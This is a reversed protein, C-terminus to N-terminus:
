AGKASKQPEDATKLIFTTKQTVTGWENLEREPGDKAPSLRLLEFAEGILYLSGAITVFPEAAAQELAESLSLCEQIILAPNAQRCVEALLKPEATRESHVPVLLIRRALPALIRCMQPWDKDALMGLIMVPQRTPSIDKLAAALIEVGGINHAGDLLIRRGSSETVLQLRGPWDVRSLGARVSADSVPVLGSVARVAALAIAANTKQHQGLLPLSLTDLPPRGGDDATVKVLSAQQQSAVSEIVRRAEPEEAGTVVPVGQKIIGAKERAIDALTNGLWKQHDFQINTIVSALPTVINTADLRGGLGTEWIVLDCGQEEFYRLAMVTVVEFFTPHEVGAHAPPSGGAPSVGEPTVGPWGQALLRRMELVLRVTGTESLPQRNMQIREGFAVLHPSTFLGVRLGQARYISELMACVSGKGNTGAVHIFRLRRQPQGALEALKFTNALGFKTGFWRLDYLFQIAEPYTMADDCRRFTAKLM